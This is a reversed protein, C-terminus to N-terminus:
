PLSTGPCTPEDTREDLVAKAADRIRAVTDHRLGLQQGIQRLALPPQTDHLMRLADAIKATPHSLMQGREHIAAAM